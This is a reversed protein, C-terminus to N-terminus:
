VSHVEDYVATSKDDVTTNFHWHGFFWHKFETKLLIEGLYGMLNYDRHSMTFGSRVSWPQKAILRDVTEQPATHTIIYDVKFDHKQLNELGIAQEEATPQEEPWWSIGEVRLDRDISYAGGFAFFTKEELTFIQGRMLHVINKRIRHVQGGNWEEQPYAYIAPFCDHNGDCFCITYPKERELRDLFRQEAATNGFLYGFDGCVILYDAQTWVRDGMNNGLFRGHEGHTDGTIYIM